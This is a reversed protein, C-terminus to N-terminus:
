RWAGLIAGAVTLFLVQYGADIAWLTFSKRQYLINIGISTAVFFVGILFGYLAGSFLSVDSGAHGQLIVALGFNMLLMLIFSSGFILAMNVGELSDKTIGVANQWAKGFLLSYWVSGLAFSAIAAVALALFNINSLEM